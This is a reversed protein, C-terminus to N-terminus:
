IDRKPSTINEVTLQNSQTMDTSVIQFQTCTDSWKGCNRSFSTRKAMSSGMESMPEHVQNQLM